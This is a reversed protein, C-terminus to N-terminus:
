VGVFGPRRESLSAPGPSIESAGNPRLFSIACSRFACAFTTNHSEKAQADPKSACEAMSDERPTFLGPQPLKGLLTTESAICDRRFPRPSRSPRSRVTGRMWPRRNCFVPASAMTEGQRAVPRAHRWAAPESERRSRTSWGVNMALCGGAEPEELFLSSSEHPLSAESKSPM